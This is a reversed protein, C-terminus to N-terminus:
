REFSGLNKVENIAYLVCEDHKDSIIEKENQITKNM